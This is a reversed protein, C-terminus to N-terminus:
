PGVDSFGPVDDVAEITVTVTATNSDLAGDSVKFTFIDTGYVNADPTYTYAGTSTNTITVTGKSANSVISFTIPDRNEDSAILIGSAVTNENLSLTGSNSVPADNVVNVIIIFASSATMAGDSVRLTITATGSRNTAPTLIVSRQTNTGSLSIGNDPILDTNSSTASVILNTAMTEADGVTFSIASTTNHGQSKEAAM